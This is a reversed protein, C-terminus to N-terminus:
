LLSSIFSRAIDCFFHRFISIRFNKSFLKGKLTERIHGLAWRLFGAVVGLGSVQNSWRVQTGDLSTVGQSCDFFFSKKIEAFHM